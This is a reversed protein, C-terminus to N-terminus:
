IVHVAGSESIYEQVQKKFNDIEEGKDNQYIIRVISSVPIFVADFISIENIYEKGSIMIFNNHFNFFSGENFEFKRNDITEIQLRTNEGVLKDNDDLIKVGRLMNIIDRYEQETM